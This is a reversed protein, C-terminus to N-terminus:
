DLIAIYTKFYEREREDKKLKIKELEFEDLQRYYSIITDKKDRFRSLVYEVEKRKLEIKEKTLDINSELNKIKNIINDKERIYLKQKEDYTDDIRSVSIAYDKKYNNASFYASLPVSVSIGAAFETKKTTLENLTGGSPPRMHLSMSVSPQMSTMNLQYNANENQKLLKRSENLVHGTGKGKCSLIKKSTIEKIMTVPINFQTSIDLETQEIESKIIDVENQLEEKRLGVIDYEIKAIDGSALRAKTAELQKEQLKLQSSYLQHLDFKYKYEIVSRYLDILYRNRKDHIMLGNYEIDKTIKNKFKSYRGGNYVSQSLSLSVSSDSIGKFSSDNTSQQGITVSINPLLTLSERELEVLKAENDLMGSKYAETKRFYNELDCPSDAKAYTNCAILVSILFSLYKM